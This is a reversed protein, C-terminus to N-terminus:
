PLGQQKVISYILCSTCMVALSGLPMNFIIKQFLWVKNRGSGTISSSFNNILNTTSTTMLSKMTNNTFDKVIKLAGGVSSNVKGTDVSIKEIKLNKSIQASLQDVTKKLSSKDLTYSLKVPNRNLYNQIENLDGRIGSTDLGVTVMNDTNESM